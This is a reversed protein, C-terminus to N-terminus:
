KILIMLDQLYKIVLHHTYSLLLRFFHILFRSIERGISMKALVTILDLLAKM